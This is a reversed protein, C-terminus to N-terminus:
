PRRLTRLLSGLSPPDMARKMDRALSDYYTLQDEVEELEELLGEEQAELERLSSRLERSRGLLRRYDEWM